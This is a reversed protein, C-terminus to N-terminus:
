ILIGELHDMEHQCIQAALGKLEVEREKFDGDLYRVRIKEFRQCPISGKLSLCGEETLYPGSKELIVPNFLVLPLFGMDIIIAAKQQGIMNAALGLCGEKHAALTDRLDDALYADSAQCPKSKQSLFLPDTVIEKIM